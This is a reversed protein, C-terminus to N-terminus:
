NDLQANPLFVIASVVRRQSSRNVAEGNIVLTTSSGSDLRMAESAGLSQFLGILEGARMTEAVVLLISGDPTIGIAAQQTLADLIRQGSAFGELSPEYAPRGDELLLPGAEVAYRAQDFVAPEISTDLFVRDGTDLLALQRNAPQYVLAYAGSAEPVQRPGIKNEVVIGDKVLLVGMDARGALAGPTSLVGVGSDLDGVDILGLSTHLAISARLRAIAAGSESFAISARNRSPLSLLGGDILLYGIADFTATDFYGANLAISAGSALQGVTRPVHSEGVVRFEGSGPAIEVVHVVSGGSNTWYNFRSYDVGATLAREVEPQGLERQPIVDVVLRAPDALTFYDYSFAPGTLLMTTEAGRSDFLLELGAVDEVPAAPLLLRPLTLELTDEAAVMGTGSLGVLDAARLGVLDLVIRIEAQGSTRVATVRPLDVGLVDLAAASLLVDSGTVVPAEAAIGSLWGLGAVYTEERGGYRVVIADGEVGATAGPLRYLDSAAVVPASILTAQTAGSSVPDLPEAQALAPGGLLSGVAIVFALAVLPCKPPMMIPFKSSSPM